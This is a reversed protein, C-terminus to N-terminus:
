TRPPVGVRVGHQLAALPADGEIQVRGVIQRNGPSQDLAGIDHDFPEARSDHRPEPQRRDIAVDPARDRAERAVVRAGSDGRPFPDDACGGTVVRAARTLYTVPGRERRHRERDENADSTATLEITAESM